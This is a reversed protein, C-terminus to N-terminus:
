HGTLSLSSTTKKKVYDVLSVSQIPNCPSESLPLTLAQTESELRVDPQSPINNAQAIPIGFVTFLFMTMKKM